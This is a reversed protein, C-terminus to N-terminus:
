IAAVLLQALAVAAGAKGHTTVVVAQAGKYVSAEEAAVGVPLPATYAPLGDITTQKAGPIKAIEAAILAQPPPTSFTNIDWGAGAAGAVYRCGQHAVIPPHLTTVAETASAISAVGLVSAVAAQPILTCGTGGKAQPTAVPVATASLIAVASPTNAAASAPSVSASAPASAPSVSASAPATATPTSSASAPATATATAAQSINALPKVAHNTKKCSTLTTAGLALVVSMWVLQRVGPSGSM